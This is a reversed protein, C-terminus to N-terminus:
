ETVINLARLAEYAAKQEARKKSGASGRALEKGDLLVASTFAKRHDPGEESILQYRIDAEGNKQLEEQLITKADYFFQKGEIDNLVFRSIFAQAARYGGDLYIAGILAEMADSIISPRLRGGTMEEGKGLYLYRNLPIQEACDSLAPECVFSARLKTLSGEPLEPYTHYFFESSVLELVADGLFELRENSGAHGRHAENACSTHTLAQRLYNTNSFRYGIKIQLEYLTADSKENHNYEEKEM